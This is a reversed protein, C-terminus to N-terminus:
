IHTSLRYRVLVTLSLQLSSQFSLEVYSRFDNLTFRIPAHAMDCELQTSPSSPNLRPWTTHPPTHAHTPPLTHTNQAVNTQPSLCTRKQPQRERARAKCPVPANGVVRPSEQISPELAPRPPRPPLPAASHRQRKPKRRPLLHRTPAKQPRQLQPHGHCARPKGKRAM